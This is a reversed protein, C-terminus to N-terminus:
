YRSSSSPALRLFSLLLLLSSSSSSSWLWGYLNGFSQPSPRPFAFAQDAYWVIEVKQLALGEKGGIAGPQSCFTIWQAEHFEVIKRYFRRRREEGMQNLQWISIIRHCCGDGYVCRHRCRVTRSTCFCVVVSFFNEKKKWYYFSFSRCCHPSLLIRAVRLLRRRKNEHCAESLFHKQSTFFFLLFSSSSYRRVVQVYSPPAALISTWEAPEKSRSRSYLCVGEMWEAQRKEKRGIALYVPRYQELGGERRGGKWGLPPRAPLACRHHIITATTTTHAFILLFSSNNNNSNNNNYKEQRTCINPGTLNAQILAPLLLLLAMLLVRHCDM